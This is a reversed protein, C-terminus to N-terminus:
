LERQYWKTLVTCNAGTYVISNNGPMLLLFYGSFKDITNNGDRFVKGEANNIILQSGNVFDTDVYDIKRNITVNELSMSFNDASNTITIEPFVPYDGTNNILYATPTAAIVTNDSSLAVYYWYPDECVCDLKIKSIRHFSGDYFDPSVSKIQKVKIYRTADFKLLLDEKYCWKYLTNKATLYAAENAAQIIGEIRIIRPKIMKDSIDKGGDRYAINIVNSNKGWDLGSMKFTDPFTYVNLDTDTLTLAM